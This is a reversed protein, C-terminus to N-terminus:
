FPLGDETDDDFMRKGRVSEWHPWYIHERLDILFKESSYNTLDPDKNPDYVIYTDRGTFRYIQWGDMALKKDRIRDKEPDHWEKGDAEIGIKHYPDAFDIFYNLAPIQPYFPLGLGRIDAWVNREIPTFRWELFYPNPVYGRAIGEILNPLERSYYERIIAFREKFDKAEYSRQKIWSRWAFREFFADREEKTLDKWNKEM